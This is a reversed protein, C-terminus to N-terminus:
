NKYTTVSLMRDILANIKSISEEKLSYLFWEDKHPGNATSSSFGVHLYDESVVDAAQVTVVVITNGVQTVYCNIYMGPRLKYDYSNSDFFYNQRFSIHDYQVGNFTVKDFSDGKKGNVPVAKEFSLDKMYGFADPSAGFMGSREKVIGYDTKKEKGSFAYILEQMIGEKSYSAADYFAWTFEVPFGLTTDSISLTGLTNDVNPEGFGVKDTSSPKIKVFGTKDEIGESLPRQKIVMSGAGYSTGEDWDEIKSSVWKKSDEYWIDEWHYGIIKNGIGSVEVEVEPMKWLRPTFCLDSMKLDADDFTFDSSGDVKMVEAKFESKGVLRSKIAAKDFYIYAPVDLSSLFLAITYSDYTGVNSPIPCTVKLQQLTSCDGSTATTATANLYFKASQAIIANSIILAAIVLGLKKM